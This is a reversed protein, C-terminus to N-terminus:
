KQSLIQKSGVSKKGLIIKPGLIEKLGFIKKSWFRKNQKIKNICKLWRGESYNLWKYTMNRRGEEKM